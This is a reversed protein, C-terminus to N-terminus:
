DRFGRSAQSSLLNRDVIGKFLETELGGDISTREYDDYAARWFECSYFIEAFLASATM